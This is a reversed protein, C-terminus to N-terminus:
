PKNLISNINNCSTAIADLYFKCDDNPNPIEYRLQEVALIINSLQNKIDHRLIHGEDPKQEDSM